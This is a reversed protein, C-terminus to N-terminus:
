NGMVRFKWPLEQLSSQLLATATRTSPMLSAILLIDTYDRKSTYVRLIEHKRNAVYDWAMSRSALIDLPPDASRPPCRFLKLRLEGDRGTAVGAGTRVFADNTFCSVFKEPADPVNADVTRFFEALWGKVDEAM